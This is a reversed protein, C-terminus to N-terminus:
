RRNVPELDEPAPRSTGAEGSGHLVRAAVGSFGVKTNAAKGNLGGRVIAGIYQRPDDMTAAQEIAARALAIMGHKAALLKQIMGGAGDGLVDKGRDFLEKREIQAKTLPKEPARKGSPFLSDQLQLHGDNAMPLPMAKGDYNSQNEKPKQWRQRAGKQGARSRGERFAITEAMVGAAFPNMIGDGDRVLRGVRFSMDLADTVRRKNMGTRRALADLSDRCPGGVEYIRLCVIWYVYGEDPKMAALAGLLKSPYCPFWDLREVVAM